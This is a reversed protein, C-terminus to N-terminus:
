CHKKSANGVVEDRVFKSVEEEGAEVANRATERGVDGNDYLLEM